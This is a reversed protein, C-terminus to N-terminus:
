LANKKVGLYLNNNAEEPIGMFDIFLSMQAEAMERGRQILHGARSAIKLFETIDPKTVVDAVVISGKIKELPFPLPDNVKMGLPSANIVIDISHGPVLQDYISTSPYIKRLNSILNTQRNKNTELISLQKAGAEAVSDAIASGAGGGGVLVINKNEVTANNKKLAALFGLGDMMDGHLYGEADRKIINVAGIRRARETFSDLLQLTQTKHPITVCCGLCNQWGKMMKFFDELNAPLLNFTVMLADIGHETLHANLVTPTRVQEVPHGILAYFKTTGTISLPSM